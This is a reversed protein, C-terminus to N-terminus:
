KRQWAEDPAPYYVSVQSSVASAFPSGCESMSSEKIMVSSALCRLAAGICQQRMEAAKM